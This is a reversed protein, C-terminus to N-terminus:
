ALGKISKDLIDFLSMMGVAGAEAGFQKEVQAEAATQLSPAKAGGRAETIEMGEFSKVFREIINPPVERGLIRSTANKFVARIDEKATTRIAAGGGGVNGFEALLLSLGVDGTVRKSNSYLLFDQVAGIDKSAFGTTSPKQNGYLGRSQLKNLFELRETTDMRAIYSYAETNPDYQPRSISGTKDILNSGTYGFTITSGSERLRASSAETTPLLNRQPDIIESEPVNVKQGPKVTVQMPKLDGGSLSNKGGGIGPATQSLGSSENVPVPIETM